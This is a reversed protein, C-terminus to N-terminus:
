KYDVKGFCAATISDKPDVTYCDGNERIAGSRCLNLISEGAREKFKHDLFVLRGAKRDLIQSLVSFDNKSLGDLVWLNDSYFWSPTM